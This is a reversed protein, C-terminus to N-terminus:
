FGCAEVTKETEMKKSTQQIWDTFLGVAVSRFTNSRECLFEKSALRKKLGEKSSFRIPFGGRSNIAVIGWKGNREVLVPGGSDGFCQIEGTDGRSFILRSKEMKRGDKLLTSDFGDFHVDKKRRVGRAGVESIGYGWSFVTEGVRLLSADLLPPFVLPAQGYGKDKLRILALDVGGANGDPSRWYTPHVVTEAVPAYPANEGEVSGKLTFKLGAIDEHLVCHAATLVLHPSVLVGTCFAGPVVLQGISAAPDKKALECPVEANLLAAFFLSFCSLFKM